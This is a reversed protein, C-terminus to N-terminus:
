NFRSRYTTWMNSTFGADWFRRWAITEIQLYRDMYLFLPDHNWASQQGMIRASLVFGGWCNATCCIRYSDANWDKKDQSPQTAHRIGWEPMGVDSATYGGYGRNYVGPSTELVVFTQADEGFLVAKNQGIQSMVPDGLVLGAFLIPWKRGSAHGGDPEWCRRAGAEIIGHSDIGLQVFRVLLAKKQQDTFNLHLMLSAVGIESSMDRGYDPMNDSPHMYRGLWGSAHDIWPREFDREISALSPTSQVPALNGLLSYKLQSSNFKITKAGAVYPPRFSGAAPASAVCTLVAATKLQPVAGATANSITSVLTKGPQLVLPTAASVNRAVNLNADYLGSGYGAYMASDFGQMNSGATPDIMSGNITRGGSTTSAPDIRVIGVPGVVWWDGNAFRGVETETSFTWTIGFQAASSARSSGIM